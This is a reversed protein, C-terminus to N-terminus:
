LNDINISEGNYTPAIEYHDVQSAYEVDKQFGTEILSRSHACSSLLGYPDDKYNESLGIAVMAGDYIATKVGKQLLLESIKGAILGACFVDEAAVQGKRGSCVLRTGTFSGAVLRGVIERAVASANIIAGIYVPCGSAKFALRITPTGNTTSFLITEGKVTSLYELPSNGFDFGPIKLNQEEGGLKYSERPLKMAYARAEGVDVFPIVKAAGNALATVVTTTARLVDIVATIAGKLGSEPILKPITVVDLTISKLISERLTGLLKQLTPSVWWFNLFYPNKTPKM